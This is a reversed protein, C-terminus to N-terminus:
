NPALLSRFRSDSRTPALTYLQEKKDIWTYLAYEKDNDGVHKGLGYVSLHSSPTNGYTYFMSCTRNRQKDRWTYHHVAQNGIYLPEGDVTLNGRDLRDFLFNMAEIEFGDHNFQDLNGVLTIAPNLTPM